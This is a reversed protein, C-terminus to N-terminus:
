PIHSNIFFVRLGEPLKLYRVPFDGNKSHLDVDDVLEMTM